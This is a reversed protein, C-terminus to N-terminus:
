LMPLLSLVHIGGGYAFLSLKFTSLFYRRHNPRVFNRRFMKVETKPHSVRCAMHRESNPHFVDKRNKGDLYSKDKTGHDPQTMM